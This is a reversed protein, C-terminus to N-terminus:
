TKAGFAAYLTDAYHNRQNRAEIRDTVRSVRDDLAQTEELKKRSTKLAEQADSSDDEQLRTRRWRIM